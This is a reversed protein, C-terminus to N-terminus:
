YREGCTYDIIIITYVDTTFPGNVFIADNIVMYEETIFWSTTPSVKDPYLKNYRNMVVRETCNSYAECKSVTVPKSRDVRYMSSIVLELNYVTPGKDSDVYHVARCSGDDFYFEEWSDYFEPERSDYDPVEVDPLQDDYAFPNIISIDAGESGKLDAKKPDQVVCGISMAITFCLLLTFLCIREFFIKM